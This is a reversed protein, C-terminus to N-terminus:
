AHTEPATSQPITTTGLVADITAVALAGYGSAVAAFGAVPWYIALAHCRDAVFYALPAALGGIMVSRRRGARKVAIGQWCIVANLWVATEWLPCLPSGRMEGAPAYAGLAIWASEAATGAITAILVPRLQRVPNVLTWLHAVFVVAVVAPGALPRGTAAGWLCVATAALFVVIRLTRM